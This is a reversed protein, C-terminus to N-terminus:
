RAIKQPETKILQEYEFGRLMRRNELGDRKGRRSASREDVRHQPARRATFCVKPLLSICLIEADPFRMWSKQNIAPQLVEALFIGFCEAVPIVPGSWDIRADISDLNGLVRKKGLVGM